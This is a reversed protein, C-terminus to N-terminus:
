YGVADPLAPPLSINPSPRRTHYGNIVICFLFMVIVLFLHCKGVRVNLFIIWLRSLHCKGFRVNLFIVIWKRNCKKEVKLATRLTSPCAKTGPRGASNKAVRLRVSFSNVASSSARILEKRKDLALYWRPCALSEIDGRRMPRQRWQLSALLYCFLM